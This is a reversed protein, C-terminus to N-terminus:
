CLGRQEGYAPNLVDSTSGRCIPCYWLGQPPKQINVCKFHYWGIECNSNDCYVMQGHEVDDCICYRQSTKSEKTKVAPPEQSTIKRKKPINLTPRKLRKPPAAIPYRPEYRERVIPLAMPETPDSLSNLVDPDFVALQGSDIEIEEDYVRGDDELPSVPRYEMGDSEPIRALLGEGEEPVAQSTSSGAEDENKKHVSRVIEYPAFEHGLIKGNFWFNFVPSYKTIGKDQLYQGIERRSRFKTGEPSFYYIDAKKNKIPTNRIVIERKWGDVLPELFLQRVWHPPDGKFNFDPPVQLIYRSKNEPEEFTSRLMKEGTKPFHKQFSRSSALSPRGSKSENECPCSFVIM